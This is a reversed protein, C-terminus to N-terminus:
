VTYQETRANEPLKDNADDNVTLFSQNLGMKRIKDLWDYIMSKSYMKEGNEDVKKELARAIFAYENELKINFIGQDDTNISVWIQSSSKLLERESTLGNNYFTTIPHQDYKSFTGIMYNSSPNTEIAIGKESIEWQMAKQILKVGRIYDASVKKEIIKKGEIRVLGNYHYYYYLVAAESKERVEIDRPFNWNVSYSALPSIDTKDFLYYGNRYLQPIDGRLKWSDYYAHIDFLMNGKHGNKGRTKQINKIYDMDMFREYIANFYKYYEAELFDKLNDLGDIHYRVIAHYMWVVNDLYDQQPLSICFGKDKYWDEPEIGLALAHNVALLILFRDVSLYRQIKELIEFGSDINMDIDDIAVVLFTEKLDDREFRSNESKINIFNYVLKQFEDKIDVSRSLDRLSSIATEASYYNDNQKKINLQKKYIDAFSNYLTRKEYSLRENSESEIDELFVKLMKALIVEFIDEGKELLSADIWDIGIFQVPKPNRSNDYITYERAEREPNKTNNLLAHMFSQMASSKGTGRRGVFTIINNPTSKYAVEQSGRLQIQVDKDVLAYARKYVKNFVSNPFDARTEYVIGRQFKSIISADKREIEETSKEKEM